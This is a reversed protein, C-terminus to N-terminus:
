SSCSAPQSPLAVVPSSFDLPNVALRDACDGAGTARSSPASRLARRRRQAMIQSTSVLATLVPSAPQSRAAPRSPQQRQRWPVSHCLQLLARLTQPCTAAPALMRIPTGPGCGHSVRRQQQLAVLRLQAGDEAAGQLWTARRCSGAACRASRSPHDGRMRTKDCIIACFRPSLPSVTFRGSRLLEDDSVGAFASTTCQPQEVEM